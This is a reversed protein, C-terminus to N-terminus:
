PQLYGKIHGLIKQDDPPADAFMKTEAKGGFMAMVTTQGEEFVLTMRGKKFYYEVVFAGFADFYVDEVDFTAVSKVGERLSLSRLLLSAGGPAEPSTTKALERAEKAVPPADLASLAWWQADRALCNRLVRRTTKLDESFLWRSAVATSHDDDLNVGGEFFTAAEGHHALLANKLTEILTYHHLYHLDETPEEEMNRLLVDVTHADETTKEIEFRAPALSTTTTM